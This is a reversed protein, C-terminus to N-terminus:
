NILLGLCLGAFFTSTAIALLAIRQWDPLPAVAAVSPKSVSSVTARPKPPAPSPAPLAPKELKRMRKARLREKEDRTRSGMQKNCRSHCLRLNDLGDGGGLAQPNLHEFTPAQSKQAGFSIDM